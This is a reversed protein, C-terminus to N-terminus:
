GEHAVSEIANFTVRLMPSNTENKWQHHSNPPVLIADGETVIYDTGDCRLTGSGEPVYVVHDWAHTHGGSDPHSVAGPMM